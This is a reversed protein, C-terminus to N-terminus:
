KSIIIATLFRELSKSEYIKEAPDLDLVKEERLQKLTYQEPLIKYEENTSYVFFFKYKTAGEETIFSFSKVINSLARTAM